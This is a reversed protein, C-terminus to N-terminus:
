KRRLRIPIRNDPTIDVMEKVSQPVYRGLQRLLAVSRRRKTTPASPRSQQVADMDIDAAEVDAALSAYEEVFGHPLHYEWGDVYGLYQNDVCVYKEADPYISRLLRLIQHKHLDGGKLYEAAATTVDPDPPQNDSEVELQTEMHKYRRDNVHAVPSGWRETYADVLEQKGPIVAERKLDQNGHAWVVHDTEHALYQIWDLPM